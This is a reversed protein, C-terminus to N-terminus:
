LLMRLAYFQADDIVEDRMGIMPWNGLLAQCTRPLELRCLCRARLSQM